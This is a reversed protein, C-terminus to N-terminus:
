KKGKGDKANIRIAVAQKEAQEKTQPKKSFGQPHNPSTVKFGGGKVPSVKYPM